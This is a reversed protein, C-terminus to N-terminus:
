RGGGLLWSVGVTAGFIGHPDSVWRVTNSIHEDNLGYWRAEVHLQLGGPRKPSPDFRAGLAPTLTLRPDLVDVYEALGVYVLQGRLLWSLDLEVQDAAWAELEPDPKYPTGLANTAFWVADTLAFAPRAGAQDWLLWDGGAELAVVGFPLGTLDLGYRVDLDRDLPRAVGSRGEVVVNPLPIPTDGLLVFGGGLTAGVEHQGPGLPRAGTLTACGTLLPLALVFTRM